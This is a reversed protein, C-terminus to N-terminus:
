GKRSTPPTSASTTSVSASGKGETDQLAGSLVSMARAVDKNSALYPFDELLDLFKQKCPQGEVGDVHEILVQALFEDASAREEPAESQNKIRHQKIEVRKPKRFVLEHGNYVVLRVKGYKAELERLHDDSIRQMHDAEM